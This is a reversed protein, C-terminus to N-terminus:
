RRPMLKRARDLVAQRDGRAWAEQSEKEAMGVARSLLIYAPLAHPLHKWLAMELLPALARERLHDLVRSDGKETLNVLAVAATNRDSWILSHLMEILWTPSIRLDREPDRAALVAIAGLARIANNRVTDDSDRLAYQLDELVDHKRPAYGIVYAAIARQEEDDSNRLVDRISRLHLEALVLFREQQARGARDALLSHGQSLDEATEGARAARGVADLFRAYAEHIEEPLRVPSTPPPRYEFHAAGKEEVGIYLVAKTEECCTAQLRARVVGPVKELAEEVDGKSRPLTDGERFPLAKRLREEPVKGLGYFDLVGIRPGQAPALWPALLFFCLSRVSTPRV